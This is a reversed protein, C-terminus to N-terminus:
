NVTTKLLLMLLVFVQSFIVAVLMVQDLTLFHHVTICGWSWIYLRGSCSFKTPQLRVIHHSFSFQIQQKSSLGHVV